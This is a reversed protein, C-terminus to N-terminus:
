AVGWAERFEEPSLHQLQEGVLGLLTAAAEGGGVPIRLEAVGDSRRRVVVQGVSSLEFQGGATACWLDLVGAVLRGGRRRPRPELTHVYVEGAFAPDLTATM